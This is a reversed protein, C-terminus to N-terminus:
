AYELNNTPPTNDIHLVLSKNEVLNGGLDSANVYIRYECDAFNNANLTNNFFNSSGSRVLNTWTRYDGTAQVGALTYYATTNKLAAWVDSNNRNTDTIQATINVDSATQNTNNTSPAGITIVLAILDITFSWNARTMSNAVM